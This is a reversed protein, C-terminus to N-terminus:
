TLGNGNVKLRALKLGFRALVRKIAQALGTEEDRSALNQRVVLHAGQEDLYVSMNVTSHALSRAQVEGSSRASEIHPEVSGDKGEIQGPLAAVRAAGTPADPLATQEVATSSSEPQGVRHPAFSPSAAIDVQPQAGSGTPTEGNSPSAPPQTAASFSKYHVDSEFLHEFASRELQQRSASNAVRAAAIPADVSFHSIANTM